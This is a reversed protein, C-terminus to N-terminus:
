VNCRITWEGEEQLVQMHENQLPTLDLDCQLLMRLTVVEQEKGVVIVASRLGDLAFYVINQFEDYIGSITEYPLEDKLDFFLQCVAGGMVLADISEKLCFELEMSPIRENVEHVFVLNGRRKIYACLVTLRYVIWKQSELDEVDQLKAILHEMIDFYGRTQLLMQYHLNNKEVLRQHERKAEAEKRVVVVQQKLEEEMDQLESITRNMRSIDEQWIVCGGFIPYSHIRTDGDIISGSEQILHEIVGPSVEGANRSSLIRRGQADWLEAGITSVHFLVDYFRNTRILGHAICGEFISAILLCEVVSMDELWHMIFPVKRTYLYGYLIALLMPLFPIYLFTRGKPARFKYAAVLLAVVSMVASWLYDAYYVIGYTANDFIWPTRFFHFALQHWDNTLTCLALFSPVVLILWCKRPLRYENPTGVLMAFLFAFAPIFVVPICNLYWLARKVTDSHVFMFQDTRIVFWFLIMTGLCGLVVSAQEHVIRWHMSCIWYVALGLYIFTRVWGLTGAVAGPTGRTLLKCLYALLILGLIVIYRILTRRQTQTM